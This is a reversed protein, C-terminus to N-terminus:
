LQALVTNVLKIYDLRDVDDKESRELMGKVLDDIDREEMLHEGEKQNSRLIEVLAKRSIKSDNSDDLLKFAEIVKGASYSFNEKRVLILLFEDFDFQKKGSQHSVEQMIYELEEENIDIGM